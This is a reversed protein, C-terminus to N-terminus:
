GGEKDATLPPPTLGGGGAARRGVVRIRGLTPLAEGEDKKIDDNDYDDNDDDHDQNHNHNHDDENDDEKSSGAFREM